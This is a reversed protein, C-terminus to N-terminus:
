IRGAQLSAIVCNQQGSELVCNSRLQDTHAASAVLKMTRL